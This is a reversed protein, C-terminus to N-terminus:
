NFRNKVIDMTRITLFKFKSFFYTHYSIFLKFNEPLIYSNVISDVLFAEISYKPKFARDLKYQLYEIYINIKKYIHNEWFKASLKNIEKLNFFELEIKSTKM